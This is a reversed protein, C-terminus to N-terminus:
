SPHGNQQPTRHKACPKGPERIEFDHTIVVSKDLMLSAACYKEASLQVARRVPKEKLGNGTVIFHVHICTFVKPDQEAREAALEVECDSVPQRAKNLIHLVEFATCGGMGSLVMEMPRIGINCGGREPPGDMVVSHGSGTEAVFTVNEIWKVRARMRQGM